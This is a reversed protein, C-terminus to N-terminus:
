SKPEVASTTSRGLPDTATVVLPKDTADVTAVYTSSGDVAVGRVIRPRPLNPPNFAGLPVVAVDSSRVRLITRAGREAASDVELIEIIGVGPEESTEPLDIAFAIVVITTTSAVIRPEIHFSPKAPQIALTATPSPPSEGGLEGNAPDNRGIAVVRYRYPRWDAGAPDLIELAQRWPDDARPDSTARFDLRAPQWLPDDPEIRAPGMLGLDTALAPNRVRHVRYGAPSAGAGPAVVVRIADPREVSRRLLVRPSAPRSFRPVAFFTIEESPRSEAADATTTSVRYGVLADSGGALCVELSTSDSSLPKATVRSFARSARERAAADSALVAQLEDARQRPTRLPDHRPSEPFVNARLMEESAEWVIYGAAGAVADWRLVGRARQHADPLATWELKAPVRPTPAPLPDRAWARCERPTFHPSFEKPRVRESGRARVSVTTRKGKTFDCVGNRLRLRYLAVNSPTPGGDEPEPSLRVVEGTYPAGVEATSTLPGAGSIRIPVVYIPGFVLHVGAIEFKAKGATALPVVLIQVTDPTRDTWDWTFDVVLEAPVRKSGPPTADISLEISAAILGPQTVPPPAGTREVTAWPSFRGFVDRTAAAYRSALSGTLPVPAETDVFVTREDWGERAADENPEQPVFAAFGAVEPRPSNLYRPPVTGHVALLALGHHQETAKWSLEVSESFPEDLVRPRNSLFSRVRLDTPPKPPPALDMFAALEIAGFPTVFRGTVLVDVEDISGFPVKTATGYGLAAALESDTAVATMVTAVTPLTFSSGEDFSPDALPITRSHTLQGHLPDADHSARLCERVLAFLPAPGGGTLLAELQQDVSARPGWVPPMAGAITAPRQAMAVATSLRQKAASRGDSSAPAPGQHVASYGDHPAEGSGYPFGVVELLSWGATNAITTADVASVTVRGRGTVRVGALGPGRLVVVPAGSTGSQASGVPDGAVDLGVIRLTSGPDPDFDARIQLFNALPWLRELREKVEFSGMQHTGFEPYEKRRTLLQFPERPFGLTPHHAWRLVMRTEQALAGVCGRLQFVLPNVVRSM